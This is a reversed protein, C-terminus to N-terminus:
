SLIRRLTDQMWIVSAEGKEEFETVDIVHVYIVKEDASYDVVLQGPTLTIIQEELGLGAPTLEGATIRVIGPDVPPRWHLLRRAMQLNTKVMHYPLLAGFLWLMLAIRRPLETLAIKQNRGWGTLWVIVAGFLIGLSWQRLSFEGVLLCWLAGLGAIFLFSLKM